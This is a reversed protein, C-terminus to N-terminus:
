HNNKHSDMKGHRFVRKVFITVEGLDTLGLDKQRRIIAETHTAAMYGDCGEVGLLIEATKILQVGLGSKHFKPDVALFNVVGLPKGPLVQVCGVIDGKHVAVWWTDGIESWDLGRILLDNASLLDIIFPTDSRKASRFQTRTLM